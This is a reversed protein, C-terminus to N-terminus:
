SPPVGLDDAGGPCLGVRHPRVQGPGVSPLQDIDGVVLLAAHEPVAKLLAQMLLVEVMSAEDLVLIDCDLPNESDRKFGGGRPDVELLRHITKAEFSTAQTM